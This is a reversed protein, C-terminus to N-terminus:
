CRVCRAYPRRRRDRRAKGQEASRLLEAIVPRKSRPLARAEIEIREIEVLRRLFTERDGRDPAVLDVIVDFEVRAAGIGADIDVLVDRRRADEEVRHLDRQHIREQRIM